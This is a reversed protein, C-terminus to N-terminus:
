YIYTKYSWWQGARMGKHLGQRSQQDAGTAHDCRKIVANFHENNGFM